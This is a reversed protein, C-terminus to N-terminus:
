HEESTDIPKGVLILTVSWCAKLPHQKNEDMLMGSESVCKSHVAKQSYEEIVVIVM